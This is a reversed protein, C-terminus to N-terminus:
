TIAQNWEFSLGDICAWLKIKQTSRGLCVWECVADRKGRSLLKKHNKKSIEIM